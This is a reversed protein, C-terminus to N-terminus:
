SELCVEWLIVGTTQGSGKWRQKLAQLQGQALLMEVGWNMLWDPWLESTVPRIPPGTQLQDGRKDGICNDKSGDYEM